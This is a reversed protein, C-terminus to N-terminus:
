KAEKRFPALAARLDDFEKSWVSARGGGEGRWSATAAFAARVARVLALLAHTEVGIRVGDACDPPCDDHRMRRAEDLEAKADKEISDLDIDIM